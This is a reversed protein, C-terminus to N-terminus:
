LTPQRLESKVDDEHHTAAALCHRKMREVQPAPRAM